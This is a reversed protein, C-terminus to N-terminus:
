RGGLRAIGSAGQATGAAVNMEPFRRQETPSRGDWHRFFEAAIEGSSIGRSKRDSDPLHATPFSGSSFRSLRIDSADWRRRWPPCLFLAKQGISDGVSDRHVRSAPTDIPAGGAHASPLKGGRRMERAIHNRLHVASCTDHVRHSSPGGRANEFRGARWQPPHMPLNGARPAVPRVQPLDPNLPAAGAPLGM